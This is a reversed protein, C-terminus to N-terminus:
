CHLRPERSDVAGAKDFVTGEIGGRQAFQAWGTFTAILLFAFLPIAVRLTRAM